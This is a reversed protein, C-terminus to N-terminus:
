KREDSARQKKVNMRDYQKNIVVDDKSLLFPGM